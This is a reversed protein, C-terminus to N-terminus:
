CRFVPRKGDEALEDIRQDCENSKRMLLASLGIRGKTKSALMRFGADELKERREELVEIMDKKLQALMVKDVTVVRVFCPLPARCPTPILM